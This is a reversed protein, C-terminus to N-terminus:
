QTINWFPWGSFTFQKELWQGMFYSKGPFVIHMYFTYPFSHQLPFCSSNRQIWCSSQPMIPFYIAFHSILPSRIPFNITHYLPFMHCWLFTCPMIPSYTTHYSLLHCSPLISSDLEPNYGLPEAKKSSDVVAVENRFHLSWKSFRQKEASLGSSLVRWFSFVSLCYFPLSAGILGDLLMQRMLFLQSLPEEESQGIAPFGLCTFISSVQFSTILFFNWLDPTSLSYEAVLCSTCICISDM